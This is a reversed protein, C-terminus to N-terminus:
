AEKNTEAIFAYFETDQKARIELWKQYCADCLWYTSNAGNVDTYSVQHWNNEKASGVSVYERPQKGDEHATADRDCVFRNFNGEKSM